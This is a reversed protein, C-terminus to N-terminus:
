HHKRLYDVTEMMVRCDVENYQAIEQMLDLQLMSVGRKAAEDHCWWAGIMAGLGDTPGDGWTTEILGHSHLAKAIAKLGFALAGRIVVPEEKMVKAFFDFWRPSPWDTRGHRKKASNYAIEYNIPEAASWHILRPENDEPALRQQVAAMHEVWADIIRAEDPEALRDVTFSAFQWQGDEMHGCGIMFILQQGGREPIRSFDDALDNVTEFDIYFELAPPERWEEEAARIRSPRVVPGDESRNVALIADLVQPRSEGTVGAIQPTLRPDTWRYVGFDHAQRRGPAAVFWLLSLEDLEAAIAKKAGHWPADQEHSMNPYLEPCSPEPLVDWSAGETRVRRLWDTADSVAQALSRKKALTGDQPVPALCDMCNLGRDQRQEWGRGLLYSAQPEFGQIRGLARNYVFTQLKYAQASGSNDLTGNVLLHLTSFKIDVVRYHWPGGLDLAAMRSEEEGIAAPFLSRLVDSRVLLDPAGFVRHQPDRVVGQHIVPVGARMAAFTEEAKMLDRVEDPGSAITRLETLTRL